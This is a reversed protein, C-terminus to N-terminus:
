SKRAEGILRTVLLLLAGAILWAVMGEPVPGLHGIAWGGEDKPHRASVVYRVVSDLQRESLRREDFRPMVYPGLRVAEAIQVASDRDLSPAVRNAVVGGTGLVQHCGSCDETFLRLGDALNGREPHPKPIAPGGYSGIYRVLARIQADTYTPSSPLPQAYPDHLPMYGTRLVFDVALPGVGRLPPGAAEVDRTGKLEDAPRVGELTVGHCSACDVLYLSRADAAAAGPLALALALLGLLLLARM